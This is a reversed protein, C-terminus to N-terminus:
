VRSILPRTLQASSARLYYSSFHLDEDYNVAGKLWQQGQLRNRFHHVSTATM